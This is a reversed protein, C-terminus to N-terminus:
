FDMEAVPSIKWDKTIENYCDVCLHAHHIETDMGSCYGWSASVEAYEFNMGMSDKTSKGCRNCVIDLVVKTTVKEEQTEIM